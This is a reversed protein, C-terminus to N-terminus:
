PPLPLIVALSRVVLTALSWGNGEVLVAMCVLVPEECKSQGLTDVYGVIVSVAGLM